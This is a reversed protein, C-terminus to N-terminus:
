LTVVGIITVVTLIAALGYFLWKAAPLHIKLDHMAHHLRHMACWIPLVIALFIVGRGAWTQAFGLIREYSLSPSGVGLPLLVGTLLLLVPSVIAAWMGGAGFLGWFLPEDCRGAKKKM